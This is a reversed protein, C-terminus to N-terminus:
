AASSAMAPASMMARLDHQMTDLTSILGRVDVGAVGFRYLELRIYVGLLSALFVLKQKILAKALEPSDVPAHLVMLRLAYHLRNFDRGLNRLYSRFIRQRDARLRREMGPEYGPQERLFRIDDEDLLREMPRYSSVSFNKLWEPDVGRIRISSLLKWMLLTACILLLGATAGAGVVINM